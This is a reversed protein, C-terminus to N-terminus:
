KAHITFTDKVEWTPTDASPDALRYMKAQLENGKLVFELFHYNPYNIDQYLDDPARDVKVPSAAGGGTARIGRPSRCRRRGGPCPDTAAQRHPDRRLYTATLRNQTRRPFNAGCDPAIEFVVVEPREEHLRVRLRVWFAETQEHTRHSSGGYRQRSTSVLHQEVEREGHVEEPSGALDQLLNWEVKHHQPGAEGGTGLPRGRPRLSLNGVIVDIAVKVRHEFPDGLM